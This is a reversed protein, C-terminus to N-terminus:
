LTRPCRGSCHLTGPPQISPQSMSTGRISFYAAAGALGIAATYAAVDITAGGNRPAVPIDVKGAQPPPTPIAIPPAGPPVVASGRQVTVIGKRKKRFRAQRTAGTADKAKPRLPTINDTTSNQDAQSM